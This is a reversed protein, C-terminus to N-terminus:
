ILLLDSLKPFGSGAPCNLQTGATLFCSKSAVVAHKQSFCTAKATIALTVLQFIHRHPQVPRPSPCLHRKQKTGDGRISNLRLYVEYEGIRLRSGNMVVSYDMRWSIEEWEFVFQIQVTNQITSSRAPGATPRKHFFLDQPTAAQLCRHWKWEKSGVPASQLARRATRNDAGRCSHNRQGSAAYFYNTGTTQPNKVQQLIWAASGVRQTGGTVSEKVRRGDWRRCPQWM